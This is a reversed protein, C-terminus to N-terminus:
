RVEEKCEIKRDTNEDQLEGKGVKEKFYDLRDMVSSKEKKDFDGISQVKSDRFDADYRDAVGDLDMDMSLPDYFNGEDDIELNLVEKLKEEDISVLENFDWFAIDNKLQILEKQSAADDKDYIYPYSEILTNDVYTNLKYNILDLNTQIEHKEDPTTTYAIGVNSLDPFLTDFDEVRNEEDYEHNIFNIIEEKVEKLLVEDTNEKGDSKGMDLLNNVEALRLNKEKLLDAQPFKKEVELKAIEFQKKTDELKGLTQELREPLKDLVNDMRTINGIEDTGFEGYHSEQGQLKFKYQSAFSDYFAYLNFNRYQGILTDKNKDGLESRKISKIRNILFEGALKKDTYKRGDLTLSTFKSLKEKGTEMDKGNLEEMGVFAGQVMNITQEQNETDKYPEVHEIDKKLNEIKIELREIEKPYFKVVKDELKYLNSKFNSELMKLKSVEVDLDMKERILPNGTALAKIEAYNLTAEDVDEAVRVPTKSTMIQSIYKQKNELTQFLYADFTNETVYRFIHVDTNENGQRVIRGARQALDAPRWPVDLDHIAILKDQANTGAGMKQTSGLLVRIEGSRVKDFIADKEKNNKANHIFEIENEPVGMKILKEKMDDYINFENSPTSMDCFILQASKKDRYKDWISFVNSVCANVKSNEDDPLLPNILRQDLAMKKGDNTIKLMNDVSPDVEKNRVKDARESFSELIEKQEETPKTKITEYQANPVPLNLVDSTKIDMFQKVTNMLEPLNYFKAFRTKSRYGNGEPNLEIATVTEGFTSAWSDFHQLHMNKLEDYQLYRQMTYLEAMSNSVPTGTAFVIGKNNTIEDMYRCKMLMDSSKQSDTTTIGAVNRMKTFLYLNKFSHAEDVFLKDIGLEEFTVVDDKKYDDNLKKLKAELGKKTKELQKVTFKQDRDRKYEDIFDLIEDIQSQLEYEQREKSIPIKEFQSHGIIVADYEGTAIRSCFRKRKSPTFDKETACLINAGPYLENFERGFQEIIHNPVVFMSKTSMGLRKSEMAIGIMEFTKGAGVEHALLTNGGFLGRAIADKQHMRLEIEPNMGEFTLNSGDYERLKISNFMRNYKEVLDSRRDIDDFIWNKFEEKIIEQKSRALMTEKDNLVSRKKGDADVFTDFVKTDRLNLSDEILKYANVRSTGYTLNSLDNNRDVSKGEVRYEGTFNSYKIDINWRNYNSTELLHFMFDKYYKEDVWTAGMRVTIDSAELEKPMVELLKQKQFGLYSLETKLIENEKRIEEQPKNETENENELNTDKALYEENKSIEYDINKIYSDIIHIKDRINGSLYEDATVYPRSFDGNNIVSRFPTTDSPDFNDLNLFIEGRLEEILTERTKDTLNQMYDFDVRGKQSISLILADNAKDTHEVAVAKRITRKTFIDSKGIFNGKKDLRELSSMLSYNADEKFLLSNKKANILSYKKSFDDYIANLEVQAAKIEEDTYDEKQLKIVQRLSKELDIYAKVKETDAKNLSVKQMISNERFYIKDEILAYSFNKVSDDAPITETELEENLEAKEYTGSINKIVSSLKEELSINGDEICALATGFRSSIEKMSGLVQSPNDAFYKNYTLGKEDTALKIWDEDIKLLKDRKKLFIIDSTVETGAEGKFVNNPLRIAGLFEARESIYRRIDESKKDMTGSSTIFAIVGGSRVKDLTKAFFYDHILFNNKEYERDAVKYEGFPVNGIAVDFLNNSFTTEEFGKIQINANPYLKSAIRGSISDLEVGYFRSGQMSEPLNGLFRGTGMSPELINGSEYGMNSLAKYISDIVINPTYFATLTSGRAAEYESSSLNEKLFERAEKWQGEKTEDFVDSLGGWGVYKSLIDQEEKTAYSSRAEIEKLLKIASINNRLRESPPLIEDEKTIKYNVPPIGGMYEDNLIPIDEKTPTEREKAELGRNARWNDYSELKKDITEKQHKTLKLNNGDGDIKGLGNLYDFSLKFERYNNPNKESYVTLERNQNDVDVIFQNAIVTGQDNVVDLSHHLLEARDKEQLTSSEEFKSIEDNVDKLKKFEELSEKKAYLETVPRSQTYLIETMLKETNSVLQLRSMGVPNFNNGTIEYEKNQFTVSLGKKNYDEIDLLILDENDLSQEQLKEGRSVIELDLESENRFALIESGTIFGNMYGENDDLKITKYTNYDQIEAIVYEKGQYKVQMGEKYIPEKPLDQEKQREIELNIFGTLLVDRHNDDLLYPLNRLMTHYSDYKIAKNTNVVFGNYKLNQRLEMNKFDLILEAEYGKKFDISDTIHEIDKLTGDEIKKIKLTYEESQPNFYYGKSEAIDKEILNSLIEKKDRIEYVKNKENEPLNVSFNLENDKNIYAVNQMAGDIKLNKNSVYIDEYYNPFQEGFSSIDFDYGEKEETVIDRDIEYLGQNNLYFLDNLDTLNTEKMNAAIEDFLKDLKQSEEFTTGRYLPYVRGEVNDKSPYVKTGTQELSIDVVKEKDVVTYYYGVKVAIKNDDYIDKTELVSEKEKSLESLYENYRHELEIRLKKVDDLSKMDDPLNGQREAVERMVRAYERQFVGSFDALTNNGLIERAKLVTRQLDEDNKLTEYLTDSIDKISNIKPYKLNAIDKEGEIAVDIKGLFNDVTSSYTLSDTNTYVVRYEGDNNKFFTLRVLDSSNKDDEFPNYENLKSGDTYSFDEFYPFLKQYDEKNSFVQMSEKELINKITTDVNQKNEIINEKDVQEYLYQFDRGNVENGDGIDVRLHETVEGNEIHDFYFKSYGEWEDSIEGYKDVEVTENHLKIQKDLEKIEDILEKNVIRGKYSTQILNSDENFEVIWYDKSNLPKEEINEKFKIEQKEVDGYIKRGTSNFNNQISDYIKEAEEYSIDEQDQLILIEEERKNDFTLEGNFAVQLEEETMQKKLETDKLERFTTPFDELILRQANLEKLENVNFYGWEVEDGLVLGFAEGTEKDYETMYWTWNSKFPIIYAAHVEKDALDVEEQDYLQPVRELMENTVLQHPDDKPYIKSNSDEKKISHLNEQEEQLLTQEEKTLYKDNKVLDEIRRAVQNWNFFVDKCDNKTLKIGKADHNEGSGRAGSLAHSSGGTGYENKLFDAQEKLTYNKGFFEYIRKKGESVGSGRMLNTDIEDETIFSKITPLDTLNTTFEKRPLELDNLRNLLENINHNHFRLIDSNGQYEKSFTLYETRLNARFDKDQLMKALYETKEPYGLRQKENLISLYTDKVEDNFDGKLYWLKEALEARENSMAEILEVNTAYNGEDLLEGMRNAADEWSLLQTYNERSSIDNSLHIGDESYWACVKDNGLYFGNGGQFTNKLFDALEGKTKGKSFEAIVDLRLNHENGGYILVTDIQNQTLPIQFGIQGANQTFSFSTQEVEKEANEKNINENSNEIGLSDTGNGNQRVGYRPEENTRRIESLRQKSTGRDLGLVREDETERENHLRDSSGRDQGSTRTIDRGTADTRLLGGQEGQPIETKSQQVKEFEERRGAETDKNESNLSTRRRDDERDYIGRGNGRLPEGQNGSLIDRERSYVGQRITDSKRGNEIGGIGIKNEDIGNETFNNYREKDEKTQEKKHFKEMQEQRQMLSIENGINILLGRSIGSTYILLKDLDNMKLNNSLIKFSNNDSTYEIGMRACISVKVSEKLFALIDLKSHEKLFDDSLEDTIKYLYQKAYLNALTDLKEDLSFLLGADKQKFHNILKDLVEIHKKNDYEWLKVESINHNRSVTQSVDFVYKIKGTTSDLLPIGKENRKVVRGISKWYDYEACATAEKNVNCISLQHTYPYKYNKGSVKLYEEYKLTNTKFEGKLHDLIYKLEDQTYRKMDSKDEKNSKQHNTTTKNRHENRRKYRNERDWDYFTGMGNFAKQAIYGLYNTGSRRKYWKERNLGSRKMLSIAENINGTYYLLRQLMFFDAESQSNFYSRYNGNYIQRLDEGSYSFYGKNFLKELIDRDANYLTISTMKRNEKSVVKPKPMYKEYLPKLESEIEIVKSRDKDKIVNGTVTFFRGEDYIELNKHRKREGPVNGKGIFHLGTGSPSIKAYTSINRLFDATMSNANTDKFYANMDETVKDIDIGLYGDGLFFGLGDGIHQSLAKKCDEYSHWTSTDNSKAPKENPMIPLKTNKEERQIIKYLCWRNERKLDNPINSYAYKEGNM